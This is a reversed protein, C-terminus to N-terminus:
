DTTTASFLDDVELISQKLARQLKNFFKPDGADIIIAKLAKSMLLVQSGAFIAILYNHYLIRGGEILRLNKSYVYKPKKTKIWQDLIHYLDM